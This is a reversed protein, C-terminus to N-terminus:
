ITLAIIEIIDLLQMAFVCLSLTVVVRVTLDLLSYTSGNHIIKCETDVSITRLLINAVCHHM